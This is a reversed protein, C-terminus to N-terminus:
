TERIVACFTARQFPESCFPKKTFKLVDRIGADNLHAVDIIMGLKEMEELFEIGRTTLGYGAESFPKEPM